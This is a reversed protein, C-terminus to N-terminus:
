STSAVIEALEKGNPVVFPEPEENEMEKPLHQLMDPRTVARPIGWGIWSIMSGTRDAFEWVRDFFTWGGCYYFSIGDLMESDGWVLNAGGDAYCVDYHRPPEEDVRGRYFIEEALAREFQHPEGNRLCNIYIGDDSM